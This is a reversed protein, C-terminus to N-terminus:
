EDSAEKLINNQILITEIMYIYKKTDLLLIIEKESPTLLETHKLFKIFEKNILEIAEDRGKEDNAKQIIPIMPKLVVVFDERLQSFVLDISTNPNEKKLIKYNYFRYSLFGMFIVLIVLFILQDFTLM